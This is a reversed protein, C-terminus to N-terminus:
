YPSRGARTKIYLGGEMPEAHQEKRLFFWSIGRWYPDIHHTTISLYYLTTAINKDYISEM